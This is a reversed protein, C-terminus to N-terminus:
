PLPELSFEERRYIATAFQVTMASTGSRDGRM